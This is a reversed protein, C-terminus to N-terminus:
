TLLPKPVHLIELSTGIPLHDAHGREVAVPPLLEVRLAVAPTYVVSSVCCGCTCRVCFAPCGGDPASDSADIPCTEPVLLSSLGSADSIVLMLVTIFLARRM